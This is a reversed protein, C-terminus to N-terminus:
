AGRSDVSPAEREEAADNGSLTRQVHRFSIAAAAAGILACLVALPLPPLPFTPALLAGVVGAGTAFALVVIWALRRVGLAASTSGVLVGTVSGAGALAVGVIAGIVGALAAYGIGFGVQQPRDILALAGIGVGAIVTSGIV